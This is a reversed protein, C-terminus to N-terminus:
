GNLNSPLFRGKLISTTLECIKLNFTVGPVTLVFRKKKADYIMLYEGQVRYAVIDRQNNESERKIEYLIYFIEGWVPLSPNKGSLHVYHLLQQEISYIENIQM